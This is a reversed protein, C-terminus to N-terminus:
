KVTLCSCEAHQGIKSSTSGLLLSKIPSFGRRGSVILDAKRSNAYGLIENAPNGVVVKRDVDGVGLGKAIKEAQQVVYDSLAFFRRQSEANAEVISTLVNTPANEIRALHGSAPKVVHEVEAMRRLDDPIEMHNTDVVHILGLSANDRAALKSGMELARSASESGDFAVVISTFM